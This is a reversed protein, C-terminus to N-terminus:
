LLPLDLFTLLKDYYVQRELLDQQLDGEEASPSPDSSSRVFLGSAFGYVVLSLFMVSLLSMWVIFLDRQKGMKAQPAVTNGGDFFQSGDQHEKGGKYCESKTPRVKNTNAANNNDSGGSGVPFSFTEHNTPCYVTVSGPHRQNRQAADGQGSIGYRGSNCVTETTSPFTM